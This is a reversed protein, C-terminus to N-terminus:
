WYYELVFLEDNIYRKNSLLTKRKSYHFIFSINKRLREIASLIFYIVTEYICKITFM